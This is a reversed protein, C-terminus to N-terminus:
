PKGNYFSAFFSVVKNSSLILRLICLGEPVMGLHTVLSLYDLPVCSFLTFCFPAPQYKEFECGEHWALTTM